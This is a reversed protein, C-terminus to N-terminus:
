KSEYRIRLGADEVQYFSKYKKSYPNPLLRIEPSDSLADIVHIISFIKKRGNALEVALRIESSGLEFIEDDGTTAKVEFCHTKGEVSVEFDCGYGDNTRNMPFKLKSNESLWCDAGVVNEGFTKQLQKYVHIEGAYGVLNKMAQTMRKRPKGRQRTGTGKEGTHRKTLDKQQKLGTLKGMDLSPSEQEGINENLHDWLNALNEASNEFPTGCVDVMRKEKERKSQQRQLSQEAQQLDKELISLASLVGPLNECSEVKSWFSAHVEEHPLIKIVEICNKENWYDVFGRENLTDQFREFLNTLDFSWIGLSVNERECWLIAAKQIIILLKKLKNSNDAHIDLPDNKPELGLNSLNELLEHVTQSQGVAVMEKDSARVEKLVRIMEGMVRQFEIKWFKRSWDEPCSLDHVHDELEVFLGGARKEKLVRRIIARFPKRASELHQRFQEKIDPIEIMSESLSALVNNWKELQATEGLSGFLHEGLQGYGRANRALDYVKQWNLPELDISQLHSALQADSNIEALGTLDADPQLLLIISRVMKITWSLNGLWRQQVEAFRDQSIGVGKLIEYLENQGPEEDGSFKGLVLKLYVPLDAREVAMALGESLLDLQQKGEHVALLVNEQAHWYVSVPVNAVLDSAHWLGIELNKVWQVRAGRLTDSAKTFAKTGTGRNQQGAFAFIALVVPPLWDLARSTLPETKAAEWTKGDCIPKIALASALQVGNGFFDRFVGKLRKADRSDLAVIPKSYLELGEHLAETADPLFVPFESSPKMVRLENTGCRVILREPLVTTEGPDFQSWSNRVMGLFVDKNAIDVEPDSLAKAHDDLLRTDATPKEINFRPMGLEEMTSLLVPANEFIRIVSIPVPSLHSYQFSRGGLALSPVYWRDTPRFFGVDEKADGILWATKQLFFKLPSVVDFKHQAGEKKEIILHAWSQLDRLNPISAFLIRMFVSRLEVDFSESQSMGPFYFFGNITYTFSGVYESENSRAIFARYDNWFKESFCSPGSEPLNLRSNGFVKFTSNWEGSKTQIPRLGRFVGIEEFLELCNEAMGGWWSEEPPLLLRDYTEICDLSAVKNLYQMLDKGLTDDTERSWGLGFTAESLQYWGGQCPAPFRALLKIVSEGKDKAVLSLILRLGWQLIDRCLLGEESQLDVPLSPIAPLLVSRLIQEVGFSKVLDSSLFRNVPTLEYGGRERATHTVISGDLFAIFPRLKEPIEDIAEESLIEDDTGLIRPRFFVTSNDGSSHLQQDTGLLVKKYKLSSSDGGLIDEVDHWFGNWDVEDESAHCVNAAEEITDALQEELALPDIGVRNYLSEILEERSSLAEIFVPFQASRRLFEETFISPNKARTLLSSNSLSDWGNDTLCIDKEYITIERQGWISSLAEWWRNGARDNPVSLLDIVIRAEHKGRAALSNFIVDSTKKALTQLLLSNYPKSFDIDTRSMDGYFPASFHAGCGSSITTPLYISLLGKESEDAQKVAMSVKAKTLEPWKGPLNSHRIATRIAEAGEPDGPGGLLREWLRYTQPVGKGDPTEVQLTLKKANERDVEIPVVTRLIKRYQGDVTVTFSNVKELFLISDTELDLAKEETARRVEDSRFPLRIVTAFGRKEFERLHSVAEDSDVPVPLLYPSLLQLEQQLWSSDHSNCNKIFSKLKSEGWELLSYNEDLPCPPNRNGELLLQLSEEFTDNVEPSFQFCYGDFCPSHPEQRSFVQPSSTLELVSRFGIGKNGISEEPDKDSQGLKALSNFNSDSFPRGDNAVYLAGYPKEDEVICIEIRQETESTARDALADHGNQILEILYRGHYQHEIQETLSHLSRYNSTGNAIEDLFTRIEGLTKLIIRERFENGEKPPGSTDPTKNM